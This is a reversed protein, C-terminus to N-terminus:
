VSVIMIVPMSPNAIAPTAAQVNAFEGGEGVRGSSCWGVRVAAVPITPRANKRLYKRRGAPNFYYGRRNAIGASRLLSV